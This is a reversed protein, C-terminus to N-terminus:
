KLSVFSASEAVRVRVRVRVRVKVRVRVRVRTKFSTAVVSIINTYIHMAFPEKARWVLVATTSVPTCVFM